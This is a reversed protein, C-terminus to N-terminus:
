LQVDTLNLDGQPQGLNVKIFYELPLFPAVKM